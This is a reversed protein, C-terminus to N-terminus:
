IASWVYNVQSWLFICVSRFQIDLCIRLEQVMDKSAMCTPPGWGTSKLSVLRWPLFKWIYVVQEPPRPSAFYYSIQEGTNAGSFIQVSEQHTWRGHIFKEENNSAYWYTFMGQHKTWFAYAGM